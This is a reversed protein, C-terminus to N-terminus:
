ERGDKIVLEDYDIINASDKTVRTVRGSPEIRIFTGEWENYPVTKDKNAVWVHVEGDDGIALGTLRTGLPVIIPSFKNNEKSM